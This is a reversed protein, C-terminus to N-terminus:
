SVFGNVCNVERSDCVEQECDPLITDRYHIVAAATPVAGDAHLAAAM